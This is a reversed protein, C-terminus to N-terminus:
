LDALCPSCSLQLRASSIGSSALYHASPTILRDVVLSIRMKWHGEILDGNQKSSKDRFGDQGANMHSRVFLGSMHVCAIQDFCQLVGQLSPATWMHFIPVARRSKANSKLARRSNSTLQQLKWSNAVSLRTGGPTRV